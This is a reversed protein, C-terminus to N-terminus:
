TKREKPEQQSEKRWRILDMMDAEEPQSDQLSPPQREQFISDLEKRLSTAFDSALAERPRTTRTEAVIRLLDQISRKIYLWVMGIKPAYMERDFILVLFLASGINSAYIDYREGEHYTLNFTRRAEQLRRSMESTTAFSAALLSVITTVDLDEAGGAAAIIQGMTDVMVVAMADAEVLLERLRRTIAELYEGSLSSVRKRAM